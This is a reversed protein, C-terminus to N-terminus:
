IWKRVRRRYKVYEEGFAEAMAEEEKPIFVLEVVVLFLIPGVFATLSGLFVAAGLLILTMFAYMPHRSFRYPGSTILTSPTEHPKVTTQARKFMQDTWITIIGGIVVLGLGLWQWSPPIVRTVPALFHLAISLLLGILWYSPPLPGKQM